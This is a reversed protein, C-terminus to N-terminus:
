QRVTIPDQVFTDLMVRATQDMYDFNVWRETVEWFEPETVASLERQISLIEETPVNSLLTRVAEAHPHAEVSLFYCGLAIATKHLQRGLIPDRPAVRETMGHLLQIFRDTVASDGERRHNDEALVRLDHASAAAMWLLRGGAAEGYYTLREAIQMAFQPEGLLAADALLEYEYLTDYGGRVEGRNITARLFTNFFKSVLLMLPRDNAAIADEGVMRLAQAVTHTIDDMRALLAANFLDQLEEVARREIWIGSQRIQQLAAEHRGRVIRSEATFWGPPLESKIKLYDQLTGHLAWISRRATDADALNVASRGVDGINELREAAQAHCVSIPSGHCANQAARIVEKRFSNLLNSPRLVKFLYLTYPILLAFCLTALSLALYTGLEPIYSDSIAVSIWLSYAISITFLLIIGLNVPSPLVIDIINFSFRQATLQVTLLVLAMLIGLTAALASATTNLTFQVSGITGITFTQGELRVTAMVLGAVAFFVIAIALPPNHAINRFQM